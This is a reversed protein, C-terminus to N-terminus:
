SLVQLPQYGEGTRGVVGIKEKDKVSFSVGKLVEKGGEYYVLSLNKVDMTGKEPWSAPPRASISYAPEPQLKTYMMVREVSTMLNEVESFMQVGYQAMDPAEVAFVLALGAVASVCFIIYVDDTLFPLLKYCTFAFQIHM